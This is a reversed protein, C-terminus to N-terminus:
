VASKKTEHGCYTLLLLKGPAWNPPAAVANSASIKHAYKILEESSIKKSNAQEISQLKKKAQYIASTQLCWLLSRELEVCTVYPNCKRTHNARALLGLAVLLPPCSPVNILLCYTYEGLCDGRRQALATVTQPKRRKQGGRSEFRRIEGAIRSTRSSYPCLHFCRTSLCHRFSSVTRLFESSFAVCTLYAQLCFWLAGERQKCSVGLPYRHFTHIRDKLFSLNRVLNVM